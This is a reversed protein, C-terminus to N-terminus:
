ENLAEWRLTVSFPTCLHTCDVDFNQRPPVRWDLPFPSGEATAAGLEAHTFRGTVLRLWTNYLNGCSGVKLSTIRVGSLSPAIMTYHRNEDNFVLTVGGRKLDPLTLKHIPSSM